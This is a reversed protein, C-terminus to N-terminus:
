RGKGPSIVVPNRSADVRVLAHKELWAVVAVCSFAALTGGELDSLVWGTPGRTGFLRTRDGRAKHPVVLAVEKNGRAAADIALAAIGVFTM